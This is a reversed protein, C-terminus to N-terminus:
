RISYTIRVWNEVKWTRLDMSSNLKYSVLWKATKSDGFTMFYYVLYPNGLDVQLYHKGDAVPACWSSGSSIRVDSPSHGKTSSSASFSSDSFREKDELLPSPGQFRGLVYFMYDERKNLICPSM